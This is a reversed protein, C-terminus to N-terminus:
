LTIFLHQATPWVSSPHKSSPFCSFPVLDNIIDLFKQRKQCLLSFHIVVKDWLVSLVLSRLFRSFHNSDTPFIVSSLNSCLPYIPADWLSEKSLSVFSTNLDSTLPTVSIV